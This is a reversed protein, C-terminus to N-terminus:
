SLASILDEAIRNFRSADRFSRALLQGGQLTALFQHARVDATGKFQLHGESRGQELVQELWSLNATFFQALAERVKEPLTSLDSSLMVSLCTCYDQVPAQYILIYKRLKDLYNPTESDIQAATAHFQKLYRVILAEGLDEKNPFHYHISATRIGVKEAIHAYSFGNFGFEQVYSQATDLIVESTNKSKTM